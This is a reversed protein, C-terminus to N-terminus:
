SSGGPPSKQPATSTAELRVFLRSFGSFGGYLVGMAVVDVLPLPESKDANQFVPLQRLADAFAEDLRFDQSSGTARAFRRCAVPEVPVLEAGGRHLLRVAPRMAGKAFVPQVLYYSDICPGEDPLSQALTLDAIGRDFGGEHLTVETGCPKAGQILIVHSGRMYFGRAISKRALTPFCM